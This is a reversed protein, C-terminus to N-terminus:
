SDNINDGVTFESPSQTPRALHAKRKFLWSRLKETNVEVLLYMIVGFGLVGAFMFVISFPASTRPMVFHYIYNYLYISFSAQGIVLLISLSKSKSDESIADKLKLMIVGYIFSVSMEYMKQHNAADVKYSMLLIFAPVAIYIIKTLNIFKLLSKNYTYLVWGYIFLVLYNMLGWKYVSSLDSGYTVVSLGLCMILVLTTSLVGRCLAIIFPLVLYFQMEVGISWFVGSIGFFTDPFLNHTFTLHTIINTLDSPKPAVQYVRIIFVWVAIAIYYPPAIRMIRKLAYRIYNSINVGNEFDRASSMGMCYGSITFFIGVGVWGNALFAYLDFDGLPYSPLSPGRAIHFLTVLM